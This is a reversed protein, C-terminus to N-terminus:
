KANNIGRETFIDRLTNYLSQKSSDNYITYDSNDIYFDDSKQSDIRRTAKELDIKDRTIIRQIRTEKNALVSIVFDCISTLGAEILLPADIVCVPAGM